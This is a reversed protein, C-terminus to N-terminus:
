RPHFKGQNAFRAGPRKFFPISDFFTADFGFERACEVDKKLDEADKEADREEAVFSYGPVRTFECDIQERNVIAEIEDIAAAGADWTAQAHDRGVDRALVHLNADTVQTLHATTHGTDITAIREREILAVQLGAKALLYATSVGTMGAGIVLVDVRLDRDLRPFSKIEATDIWYPVRKM